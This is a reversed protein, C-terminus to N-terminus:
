ESPGDGPSHPLRGVVSVGQARRDIEALVDPETTQEGLRNAKGTGHYDSSGTVLLGFRAALALARARAAPDHDPHHAELGDLGASVLEAVLEDTASGSRAASFPHALVAVGGAARVLRVAEVPDPAVHPVYYPSSDHLWRAFAEDRHAVVGSAVLADAIHPRGPTAGPPVNALVEAYTVPIGDAALQAVMRELRGARSTRSRELSAALSPDQPDPLYALLHSSRGGRECTIEIGPVLAIGCRRAAAAAQEWGETTDHDTLAVVDLGAAAAAEVLAAPTDTGDSASSHTHLDIGM